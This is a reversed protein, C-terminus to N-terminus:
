LKHLQDILFRANPIADGITNNFYVYVEKNEELWTKINAADKKLRDDSYGGRYDGAPGHYRMYIVSSTPMPEWNLSGPIDQLVRTASFRELLDDTPKTYWSKDRFEVALKWPNSTASPNQADTDVTQNKTLILLLELLNQLQATNDAKASPPLQILICGKKPGVAAATQMFRDVEAPDFALAPLHTIGKWLKVTFRFDPPVETTWKAFTSPKPIKYFISNVELSNFLSAYYTLRTGARYAEPFAQKNPVPLVLGSTGCYFKRPQM